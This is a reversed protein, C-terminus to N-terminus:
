KDCGAGLMKCLIWSVFEGLLYSVVVFNVVYALIFATPNEHVVNPCFYVLLTTPFGLVSLYGGVLANFAAFESPGEKSVSLVMLFAGVVVLPLGLKPFRKRPRRPVSPQVM